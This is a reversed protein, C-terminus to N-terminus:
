LRSISRVMQSKSLASIMKSGDNFFINQFALLVSFLTFLHLCPNKFALGIAAALLNALIGAGHVFMRQATTMRHLQEGPSEVLTYAFLTFPNFAFTFKGVRFRLAPGGPKAYGVERVEAGILSWALAHGAEHVLAAAVTLGFIVAWGTGSFVLMSVFDM